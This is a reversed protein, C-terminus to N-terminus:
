SNHDGLYRTPVATEGSIHHCCAPDSSKKSSHIDEIMNIKKWVAAINSQKSSSAFEEM